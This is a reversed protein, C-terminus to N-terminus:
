PAVPFLMWILISDIVERNQTFVLARGYMSYELLIHLLGFPSHSASQLLVGLSAMLVKLGFFNSFFLSWLFLDCFVMVIVLVRGGAYM